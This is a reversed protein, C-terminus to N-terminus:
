KDGLRRALPKRALGSASDELKCAGPLSGILPVPTRGEPTVGDRDHRDRRCYGQQTFLRRGFARGLGTSCRRNARFEIASNRSFPATAVLHDRQRRRGVQLPGEAADDVQGRLVIPADM